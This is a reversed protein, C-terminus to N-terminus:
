KMYDLALDKQDIKLLLFEVLEEFKTFQGYLLKLALDDDVDEIHISKHTKYNLQVKNL